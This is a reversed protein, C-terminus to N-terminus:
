DGGFLGFLLQDWSQAPEFSAPRLPAGHRSRALRRRLLSANLELHAGLAGNIAQAAALAECDVM